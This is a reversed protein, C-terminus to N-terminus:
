KMQGNLEHEGMREDVEVEAASDGDEDDSMEMVRRLIDAKLQDSYGTNDM